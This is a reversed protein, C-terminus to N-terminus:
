LCLNSRQINLFEEKSLQKFTFGKIANNKGKFYRNITQYCTDFRKCIELKSSFVENTEVCLAFFSNYVFNKKYYEKLKNSQKESWEKTRKTKNRKEISEKSTLKLIIKEKYKFDKFRQQTQLSTNKRREENQWAILAAEKRIRKSEETKVTKLLKSYVSPTLIPSLDGGQTINYGNNITNYEKIFAIELNCAEAKTLCCVLIEKKCNTFGYKKIANTIKNKSKSSKHQRMRQAFNNTIGIYSKQNSFTIKYVCYNNM